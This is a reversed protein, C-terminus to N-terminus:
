YEFPVAYVVRRKRDFSGECTYMTLQNEDSLVADIDKPTIAHTETVTYQLWIGNQQVEVLDGPKLKNLDLWLKRTNHAYLIVNGEGPVASTSLWAVANDFMDWENGNVLAAQVPLDKKIKEIRVATPPLKTIPTATPAVYVPMNKTTYSAVIVKRIDWAWYVMGSVVMAVGTALILTKLASTINSQKM